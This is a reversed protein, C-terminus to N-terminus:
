VTSARHRAPFIVPIECRCDMKTKVMLMTHDKITRRKESDDDNALLEVIAINSCHNQAKQIFSQPFGKKM